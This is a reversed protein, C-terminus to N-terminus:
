ANKLADVEAKLETVAGILKMILADQSIGKYSDDLEETIAETIVRGKPGTVAPKVEVTKTRKIDKVIAPCVEAVEQAVLGLQRQSRLEDNVPADENWDYNKLMGGLAVVDALQPKAPTSNEKFRADSPPVVTATVTGKFTAEGGMQFTINANSFTSSGDTFFRILQNAFHASGDNYLNTAAPDPPIGGVRVGNSIDASGDENLRIRSMSFWASGDGYLASVPGVNAINCELFSSAGNRANPGLVTYLVRDGTVNNENQFVSNFPAASKVRLNESALKGASGGLYAGVESFISGDTNLKLVDELSDGAKIFFAPTSMNKSEAYLIVAGRQQGLAGLTQIVTRAKDLSGFQGTGNTFLKINPATETYGIGMTNAFYSSGDTAVYFKTGNGSGSSMVGLIYYNDPSPNGIVNASFHAKTADLASSAYFSSVDSPAKVTIRNTTDIKGDASLTINPDSPLTDGILVTNKFEGSGDAKLKINPSSSAVDGGIFTTGNNRIQFGKASTGSDDYFTSITEAEPSDRVLVLKGNANLTINGDGINVNDTDTVPKLDSGDKKWYSVTGPPIDASTIYGSDNDFTSVPLDTIEQKQLAATNGGGGPLLLNGTMVDGAVEVYIDDLSGTNNADWYSGNWTYTVNNATYTDNVSPTAPFNLVTM